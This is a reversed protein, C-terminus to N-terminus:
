DSEDDGRMLNAIIIEYADVLSWSLGGVMWAVSAVLYGGEGSTVGALFSMVSMVFCTWKMVLPTFVKDFLSYDKPEGNFHHM